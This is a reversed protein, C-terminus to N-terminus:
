EIIEPFQNSVTQGVWAPANERLLALNNAELNRPSDGWKVGGAISFLESYEEVGTRVDYVILIAPLHVPGSSNFSTTSVIFNAGRLVMLYGIGHTLLKTTTDEDLRLPVNTGDAGRTNQIATVLAQYDGDNPLATRIPTTNLGLQSTEDAFAQSLDADVDWFGDFTSRQTRTENWLVKYVMESYSIAKSELYFATAINSSRLNQSVEPALPVTACASVVVAVIIGLATKRM